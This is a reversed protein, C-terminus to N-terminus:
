LIIKTKFDVHLKSDLQYNHCSNKEKLPSNAGRKSKCAMKEYILHLTCDLSLRSFTYSAGLFCAKHIHFYIHLYIITYIQEIHHVAFM